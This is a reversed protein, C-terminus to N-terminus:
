DRPVGTEIASELDVKVGGPLRRDFAEDAEIARSLTGDCVVAKM